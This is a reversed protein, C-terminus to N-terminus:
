LPRGTLLRPRDSTLGAAHSMISRKLTPMRSIAAIGLDRAARLPPFDNSFLRNIGDTATAMLATEFGRWRRYRELVDPAGIDEGRRSANVVVEALAAADRYGLNLGQGALPHIGHAADGVLALRPGVTTEALSLGLPFLARDGILRIDGLFSGFVPRLHELYQDPNLAHIRQATETEETWVISSRDGPLPLIALPGAPSFFQHAIGNHPREHAVSAVLSMQKYTWGTRPIQALVAMPSSRGDSALILPAKLIRNAKSRADTGVAGPEWDTVRTGPIHAIADSAQVADLLARRLARDEVMHGFPGEDLEAHDFHLFAPAAGEGPRGDSVKIDLIPQADADVAPWIGLATLMQITAHSLAYARGDFKPERSTPRKDADVLACRLGGSALALATVSGVLGGGVIVVDFTESM